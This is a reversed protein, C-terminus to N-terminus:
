VIAIYIKKCTSIDNKSKIKNEEMYVIKDLKYYLPLRFIIWVIIFFANMCVFVYALIDYVIAWENLSTDISENIKSPISFLARLRLRTNITTTEEIEKYGQLTSIIIVNFAIVYVYMFIQVYIYNVKSLIRGLCNSQRKKYYNIEKQFLAIHKILANKKSNESTRDVKAFFEKKTMKSLYIM